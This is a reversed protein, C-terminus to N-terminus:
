HMQRGWVLGAVIRGWPRKAGAEPRLKQSLFGIKSSVKVRLPQLYLSHLVLQGNADTKAIPNSLM